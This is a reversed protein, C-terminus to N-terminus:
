GPEWVVCPHLVCHSPHPCEPLPGLSAGEVRVPQRALARCSSCTGAGTNNATFRVMVDSGFVAVLQAFERRRAKRGELASAIFQASDAPYKRGKETLIEYCERSLILTARYGMAKMEDKPILAGFKRLAMGSPFEQGRLASRLFAVDSPRGYSLGDQTLAIVYDDDTEKM